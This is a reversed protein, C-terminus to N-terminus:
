HYMFRKISRKATKEFEEALIRVHAIQAYRPLATNLAIRNEEMLQQIDQDTLNQTAAEEYDPVILATLKGTNMTILSEAVYPM